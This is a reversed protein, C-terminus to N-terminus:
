KNEMEIRVIKWNPYNITTQTCTWHDNRRCCKFKKEDHKIKSKKKDISAWNTDRKYRRYM